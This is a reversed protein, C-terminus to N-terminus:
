GSIGVTKVKELDVGFLIFGDTKTSLDNSAGCKRYQKSANGSYLKEFPFTIGL